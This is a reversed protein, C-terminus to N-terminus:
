WVTTYTMCGSHVVELKCKVLLFRCSLKFAWGYPKLVDALTNVLFYLNSDLELKLSNFLIITNIFVALSFLWFTMGLEVFM